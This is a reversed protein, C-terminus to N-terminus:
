RRGGMVATYWYHVPVSVGNTLCTDCLNYAYAEPQAGLKSLRDHVPNYISPSPSYSTIFYYGDATVLRPILELEEHNLYNGVTIGVVIDYERPLDADARMYDPLDALDGVLLEADPYRANLVELMPVSPDIGVYRYSGWPIGRRALERPLMGTGCGVDLVTRGTFDTPPLANDFLRDIVACHEATRNLADYIHAIIDYLPHSPRRTTHPTRHAPYRSM